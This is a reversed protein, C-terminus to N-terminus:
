SLNSHTALRSKEDGNSLTWATEWRQSPNLAVGFPDSREVERRQESLREGM